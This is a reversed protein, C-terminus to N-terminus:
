ITKKALVTLSDVIDDQEYNTKALDFDLKIFYVTASPGLRGIVEVLNNM